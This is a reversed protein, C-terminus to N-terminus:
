KVCHSESLGDDATSEADPEKEDEDESRISRALLIKRFSGISSFSWSNKFIRFSSM